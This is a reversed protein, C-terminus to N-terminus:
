KTVQVIKEMFRVAGKKGYRDILAAVIVDYDAGLFLLV